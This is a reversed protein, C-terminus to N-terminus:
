LMESAPLEIKLIKAQGMNLYLTRNILELQLVDATLETNLAYLQTVLGNSLKIKVIHKNIIGLAFGNDLKLFRKSSFGLLPVKYKLVLNRDYVLIEKKVYVFVRDGLISIEGYQPTTGTIQLSHISQLDLDAHRLYYKNAADKIVAYIDNDDEKMDVLNYNIGLIHEDQDTPDLLNTRIITVEKNPRKAAMYVHDPTQMAKLAALKVEATIFPVPNLDTVAVNALLAKQQDNTPLSPDVKSGEATTKMLLLNHDLAFLDKATFTLPYKKLVEDKYTLYAFQTLLLLEGQHLKMSLITKNSAQTALKINDWAGTGKKFHLISPKTLDASTYNDIKVTYLLKSAASAAPLTTLTLNSGDAAVLYTKYVTKNANNVYYCLFYANEGRYTVTTKTCSLDAKSGLYNQGDETLSYIKETPTYVLVSQNKLCYVYKPKEAQDYGFELLTDDQDKYFFKDQAVSLTGCLRNSNQHIFGITRKNVPVASTAFLEGMLQSQNLDLDVKYLKTPTMTLVYYSSEALPSRRMLHFRSNINTVMHKTSKLDLNVSFLSLNTWSTGSKLQSAVLSIQENHNNHHNLSVVANPMKDFIGLFQPAYTFGNVEEDILDVADASGADNNFDTLTNELRLGGAAADKEGGGGVCGSLSLSLLSLVFLSNLKKM